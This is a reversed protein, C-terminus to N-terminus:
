TLFQYSMPKQREAIITGSDRFTPPANTDNDKIINNEMVCLVGGEAGHAGGNHNAVICNRRLDGRGWRSIRIGGPAGYVSNNGVILNDEIAVPGDPSADHGEGAEDYYLNGMVYIRGGDDYATNGAIWKYSILPMSNGEVWIGGAGNRYVANGLVM